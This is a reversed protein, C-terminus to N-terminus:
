PITPRTTDLNLGGPYAYSVYQDYGHVMVACPEACHLTHVGDSVPVRVALWPAGPIAEAQAGPLDTAETGDLLASTGARVTLSVYDLAYKNPALFVYDKRFQREPVALTFAPDGVRADGEQQGPSPADQSALFQGVLIPHDSEIMFDGDAGFEYWQGTQLVPVDAVAPQLTVHTDDHGALIRWQDKELGRRASRVAVYRNDWTSVPFLQQELHDACCTILSPRTCATHPSCQPGDEPTCGCATVPDNECTHTSLDCHNSNPANGAESGGFVIVPKDATVHSGTLDEGLGDTEINLVEYADLTVTMQDGAVMAAIGPGAATKATTMLTVTTPEPSMGIITVFGKLEDFTQERSIVWYERDVATTPLLLSADNSFVNVNELPNFQYATIPINSAVRYALRDKVTGNVDRRPLNFIQLGQPPIVAAEVFNPDRPPEGCTAPSPAPLTLNHDVSPAAAAALPGISLFVFATKNPDPNSVVVAFQSGAADCFIPQGQPDRDCRVYANDLDAPFYECGLYSKQSEDCLAICEGASCVGEIPPAACSSEYCWSTGQADCVMISINDAHCRREGPTCVHSKCADQCTGHGDCAGGGTVCLQDKPCTGPIWAMGDADCVLVDGTALCQVNDPLCVADGARGIQTTCASIIISTIALLEVCLWRYKLDM